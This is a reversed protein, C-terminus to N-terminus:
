TESSDKKDIKVTRSISLVLGIAISSAIISSGGYSLFPVAIGKIPIIGSIGFSNIFFAGMIMVAVGISFFHYLNNNVRNSIRFIRWCIAIVILLVTIIGLLGTEEAIGALVFDTHVESLFGMKLFGNGIGEGTIGGNAIANLSHGVQYPEDYGEVTLQKRVFDPFIGLVSEQHMAWWEAIRKIRHGAVAILAVFGVVGVLFLSMILKKSRNAFVIFVILIMAMLVTQGLDKQFYAVFFIVVIFILFYPLFLIYEEVLKTATSRGIVNRSFSSALFYIFGIKFFEVPSLSLGPFKIWRKAGGSETVLFDPMFPMLVILVFFILFSNKGIKQVFNAPDKNLFFYMIFIGIFGYGLQRIFFHFDNYELLLVTYVSLSYSFVIGIIILTSALIFLIYDPEHLQSTKDL